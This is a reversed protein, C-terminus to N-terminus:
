GSCAEKFGGYKRFQHVWVQDSTIGAALEYPTLSDKGIATFLPDVLSDIAVKFTGTWREDEAEDENEEGDEFEPAIALVHAIGPPAHQIAQISLDDVCLCLNHLWPSLAQTDGEFLKAYITAIEKPTKGDLEAGEVWKLSFKDRARQTEERIADPTLCTCWLGWERFDAIVESPFLKQMRVFNPSSTSPPLPENALRQQRIEEMEDFFAQAGDEGLHARIGTHFKEFDDATLEEFEEDSATKWREPGM